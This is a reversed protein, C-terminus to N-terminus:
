CVLACQSRDHNYNEVTSCTLLILIITLLLIFKGLLFRSESSDESDDIFGM